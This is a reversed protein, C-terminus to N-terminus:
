RRYYPPIESIPLFCIIYRREARELVYRNNDFRFVYRSVLTHSIRPPKCEVTVVAVQGSLKFQSGRTSNVETGNVRITCRTLNSEVYVTDNDQVLVVPAALFRNIFPCEDWKTMTRLSELYAIAFLVLLVFGVFLLFGIAIDAIFRLWGGGERKIYYKIKM